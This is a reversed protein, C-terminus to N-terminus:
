KSRGGISQKIFSKIVMVRFNDFAKLMRRGLINPSVISFLCALLLVAGVPISIVAVIFGFVTAMFILWALHVIVRRNTM